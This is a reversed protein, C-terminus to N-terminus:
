YFVVSFRTQVPTLSHGGAYVSKSDRIALPVDKMIDHGLQISPIDFTDFSDSTLFIYSPELVM